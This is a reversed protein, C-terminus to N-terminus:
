DLGGRIAIKLTYAYKCPKEPPLQVELAEATQKWKVPGSSGLLSVGSIGGPGIWAGQKLTKIRLVGSEPWGLTIAFLDNGKRTFRIDEPGASDFKWGKHRAREFILKGSSGEAQTSWKSNGYVAEGNVKLWDGIERL